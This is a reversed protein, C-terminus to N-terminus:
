ENETPKPQTFHILNLYVQVIVQENGIYPEIIKESPKALEEAAAAEEATRLDNAVAQKDVTPKTPMPPPVMRENRVRVANITFLYKKNSTIVNIADLASRRDGRFTIEVPMATWASTSEEEYSEEDESVEKEVKLEDTRCVKIFQTLNCQALTTVLDNIARMQFTLEPAAKASPPTTGYRRFGLWLSDDTVNKMGKEACLKKLSERNAKLENQFDLPATQTLKSSAQFCEYGAKLENVVAVYNKLEKEFAENSGKTPTISAKKAKDIKAKQSIIQQDLQERESNFMYGAVSLGLFVLFGAGATIAAPKNDTIWSSM